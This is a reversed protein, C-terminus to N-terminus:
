FPIDDIDRMVWTEFRGALALAALQVKEPDVEMAHTTRTLEVAAKLVAMRTIARDKDGAILPAHHPPTPAPAADPAAAKVHLDDLVPEDGVSNIWLSRVNKGEQNTWNSVGCVFAGHQGIKQSLSAVLEGDKTWLNKTYESGEPQVAVQWKDPGKTIIATITGAVMETEKVAQESV